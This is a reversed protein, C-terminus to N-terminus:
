SLCGTGQLFLNLLSFNIVTRHLYSNKSQILQAYTAFNSRPTFITNESPDHKRQVEGTKAFVPSFPPLRVILYELYLQNLSVCNWSGIRHSYRLVCTPWIVLVRKVRGVCGVEGHRLM